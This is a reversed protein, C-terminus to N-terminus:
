VEAAFFAMGAFVVALGTEALYGVTTQDRRNVEELLLIQAFSGVGNAAASSTIHSDTVFLGYGRM